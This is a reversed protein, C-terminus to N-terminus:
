SIEQYTNFTWSIQASGSDQVEPYAMVYADSITWTQGTDAQLQLEGEGASPDFDSISMASTIQITAQVSGPNYRQSRLVRGAVAVNENQMGSPRFRVGKQVDYQRGKWWLRIIGITKTM